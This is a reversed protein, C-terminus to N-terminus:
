EGLVEKRLKQLLVIVDAHTMGENGDRDWICLCNQPGYPVAQVRVWRRFTHDAADAEDPNWGRLIRLTDLPGIYTAALAELNGAWMQPRAEISDLQQVLHADLDFTM